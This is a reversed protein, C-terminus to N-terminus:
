TMLQAQLLVGDAVSYAHPIVNDRVHSFTGGVSTIQATLAATFDPRTNLVVDGFGVTDGRHGLLYHVRGPTSALIYLTMYDARIQGRRQEFDRNLFYMDPLSGVAQASRVFRVDAAACLTSTWGGGSIGTIRLSAGPYLNLMTNAAISNPGVWEMFNDRDAEHEGPDGSTYDNGGVFGPLPFCVVITGVNMCRQIVQSGIGNSGIPADHGEWSFLIKGNWTATPIFVRPRLDYGPITMKSVSAVGTLSSLTPISLITPDAALTGLATPLGAGGTLDYLLEARAAAVQEVTTIAPYNPLTGYAGAETWARAQNGQNTTLIADGGVIRSFGVDAFTGLNEANNAQRAGWILKRGMPGLVTVASHSNVQSPDSNDCFLTATASNGQKRYEFVHPLKTISGTVSPVTPPTGFRCAVGGETNLCIYGGDNQNVDSTATAQFTLVGGQNLHTFVQLDFFINLTALNLDLDTATLLCSTASARKLKLGGNSIELTYGRANSPAVFDAAAGLTGKNAVRCVTQGVTTVPITGATDQFLTDFDYIDYHLQHTGPDLPTLPSLTGMLQWRDTGINLISGPAHDTAFGYGQPEIIADGVDDPTPIVPAGGIKNISFQTGAAFTEVSSSPLKLKSAAQPAPGPAIVNLLLQRRTDAQTLTRTAVITTPAVPAVLAAIDGINDAVTTIEAINDAVTTVNGINDAVAGIKNPGILDNRIAEVGEDEFIQDRAETAAGIQIEAAAHMKAFSPLAVGGDITVDTEDDGNVLLDARDMNIQFKNLKGQIESATPM